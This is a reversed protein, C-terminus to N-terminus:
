PTGSQYIRTLEDKTLSWNCLRIEDIIGNFFEPDKAHPSKGILLPETNSVPVPVNGQELVIIGDIAILLNSNAYAVAIQYYRNLELWKDWYTATFNGSSCHHGYTLYPFTSGGYRSVSINYNGFDQGKAVLTMKSAYDPGPPIALIKFTLVLTLQKLNLSANNAVQLFDNVGDFKYAQNPQSFRNTTLTPGYLTSTLKRNLYVISPTTSIGMTTDRRVKNTYNLSQNGM